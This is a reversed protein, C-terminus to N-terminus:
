EARLVWRKLIHTHTHPPPMHTYMCAHMYAHTHTHTRACTHMHTHTHPHTPPHHLDQQKDEQSKFQKYDPNNDNEVQPTESDTNLNSKLVTRWAKKKNINSTRKAFIENHNNYTSPFAWLCEVMEKLSAKSVILLAPRVSM